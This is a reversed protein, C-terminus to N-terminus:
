LVSLAIIIISVTIGKTYLSIDQSLTYIYVPVNYVLADIINNYLICRMWSCAHIPSFAM